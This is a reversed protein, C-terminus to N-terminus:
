SAPRGSAASRPSGRSPRSAAPLAARWRTLVLRAAHAGRVGGGGVRAGAARLARAAERLTAGTTIVDDVIWVRPPCAAGRACRAASTAAARRPTSGPRARRTACASSRPRRSRPRPARRSRARWSSRRSQLRARAAPAPPAAGAGRSRARAGSRAARRAGRARAVAAIPGPALGRLGRPPYKFAHIWDSVPPELWVAAVAADLPRRGSCPGADRATSSVARARM